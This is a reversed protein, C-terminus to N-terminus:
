QAELYELEELFRGCFRETIDSAPRASRAASAQTAIEALAAKADNASFVTLIDPDSRLNEYDYRYCDYNVVRKGSAVAWKITSSVSALYVDCIPILGAVGGELVEFGDKRLFELSSSSLTPHPSIIVAYSDQVDRLLQLWGGLLKMYTPYEVAPRGPYQDPPIACLLIKRQNDEGIVRKRQEAIQEESQRLRDIMPTGVVAIRKKPVKAMVYAEAMRSSEVLLKDTLGTNVIWPNRPALNLEEMVTLRPLPLRVLERGRYRMWWRGFLLRTIRSRAGKVQHDPHEFYAIAGEEPSIAGYTLVAARGKCLQIARIWEASDREVNEEPLILIGASAASLFEFARQIRSRYHARWQEIDRENLRLLIIAIRTRLTRLGSPRSEPVPFTPSVDVFGDSKLQARPDADGGFETAEHVYLFGRERALARYTETQPLFYPSFVIPTRGADRLCEAASLMLPFNGAEYVVLVVTRGRIKKFIM